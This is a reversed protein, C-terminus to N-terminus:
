VKRIELPSMITRILLKLFNAFYACDEDEQFKYQETIYGHKNLMVLVYIFQEEKNNKQQETMSKKNNEESLGRLLYELGWFTGKVIDTCYKM